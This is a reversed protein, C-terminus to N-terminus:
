QGLKRKKAGPEQQELVAKAKMKGEIPKAKKSVPKSKKGVPKVKSKGKVSKSKAIVPEATSTFEKKYREKLLEQFRGFTVIENTERDVVLM